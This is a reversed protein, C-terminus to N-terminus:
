RAGSRQSPPAPPQPPPPPPPPQHARLVFCPGEGAPASPLLSRSASPVGGRGSVGRGGSELHPALPSPEKDRRTSPAARMRTRALGGAHPGRRRPVRRRRRQTKPTETGRPPPSPNRDATEEGGPHAEPAGDTSPSPALTLTGPDRAIEANKQTEGQRQRGREKDRDGGRHRDSAPAPKWPSSGPRLAIPLCLLQAPAEGGGRLGGRSRGCDGGAGM